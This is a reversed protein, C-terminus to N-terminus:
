VQTTATRKDLVSVDSHMVMYTREGVTVAKRWRERSSGHKEVDVFGAKNIEGIWRRIV